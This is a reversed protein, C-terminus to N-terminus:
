LTGLTIWKDPPYDISGTLEIENVCASFDEFNSLHITDIQVDESLNIVMSFGDPPDQACPFIVYSDKDNTL